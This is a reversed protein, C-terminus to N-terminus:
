KKEKRDKELQTLVDVAGQTKLIQNAVEQITRQLQNFQENLKKLEEQKQKLM